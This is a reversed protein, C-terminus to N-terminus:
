FLMLAGSFRSMMAVNPIPTAVWLRRGGSIRSPSRFHCSRLFERRYIFYGSFTCGALVCLSSMLLGLRTWNVGEGPGFMEERCRAVWFRPFAGGSSELSRM